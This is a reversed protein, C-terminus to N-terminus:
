TLPTTLKQIKHILEDRFIRGIDLQVHDQVIQACVFRLVVPPSGPVLIDMKVEGRRMRRPQVLHLDPEAYQPSTCQPSGAKSGGALYPVGYVAEDRDIVFGGRWEFPSLFRHIRGFSFM